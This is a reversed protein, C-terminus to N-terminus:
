IRMDIPIGVESGISDDGTPGKPDIVKVGQCEDRDGIEEVMTILGVHDQGGVIQDTILTTGSLFAGVIIEIIKM